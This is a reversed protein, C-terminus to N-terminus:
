HDQRLPTTQQSSPASSNMSLQISSSRLTTVTVRRVLPSAVPSSARFTLRYQWSLATDGMRVPQKLEEASIERWDSWEGGEPKIRFALNLASNEPTTVEYSAILTDFPELTTEEPSLYVGFLGGPELQYVFTPDDGMQLGDKVVTNVQEGRVFDAAQHTIVKRSADGHAARIRLKGPMFDRDHNATAAQTEPASSSGYTPHSATSDTLTLRMLSLVVVLGGFVLFLWKQESSKQKM